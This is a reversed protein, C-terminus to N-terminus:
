SPFSKLFYFYSSFEKCYVMCGSKVFRYIQLQLEFFHKVTIKSKLAKLKQLVANLMQAMWKLVSLSQPKDM